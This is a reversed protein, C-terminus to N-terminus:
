QAASEACRFGRNAGPSNPNHRFRVFVLVQRANDVYSGGRLSKKIGRSPGQPNDYPSTNYYNPSFWDAVWERVNGEMNLVGYPSAGRSYRNVSVTANINNDYNLLSSNPSIDGWPYFQAHIGRAAKEWEAETPLRRGAWRCYNDADYWTVFTIPNNRYLPNNYFPNFGPRAYSYQCQGAQVCKAYMSNTVETKDVWFADLYITRQPFSAPFSTENTGMSFEGEPIYVESMGDIKSKKQNIIHSPAWYGLDFSSIQASVIRLDAKWAAPMYRYGFLIGAAIGLLIGVSLFRQVVASSNFSPTKM